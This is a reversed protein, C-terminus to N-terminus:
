PPPMLRMRRAQQVALSRRHVGMKQYIKQWYWKVTSEALGLSVGIESNLMSAGALRLIEIERPTLAGSVATEPAAEQPAATHSDVHVLLRAAAQQASTPVVDSHAHLHRLLDIVDDGDDLFSRVFGAEAGLDLAEILQRLAATRQGQRLSLRALLVACRVASRVCNRSRAHAFWSKMLPLAAEDHSARACAIALLEHESTAQPGPFLRAPQVGAAALLRQAERTDGAFMCQRVREALVHARLRNFDYREAFHAADDLVAAAARADQGASALRSATIFGAILNDVFGLERSM